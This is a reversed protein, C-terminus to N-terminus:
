MGQKLMVRALAPFFRQVRVMFHGHLTVIKERRRRAVASVIQRAAREPRMTLLSPPLFEAKDTLAGDNNVRFIETSIFGPMVHTVSVGHFALETALGDSLGRLAAKSMCYATSAPISLHGAISGIIVIRGKTKKLEELSAYITRLVGFVNTEMQRRYYELSIEELRGAVGYGANAVVVDLRGLERVTERVANELDGDKNVDCAIPIARRSFEQTIERSLKALRDLRRACIVVHAGERAFQRAMAEGIGSSAGTILVVQDKFKM